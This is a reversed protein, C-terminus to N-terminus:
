AMLGNVLSENLESASTDFAENRRHPMSSGAVDPTLSVSVGFLQEFVENVTGPSPEKVTFVAVPTTVNSGSGVNTPVAV